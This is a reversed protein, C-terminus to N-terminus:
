ETDHDINIIEEDKEEDIYEVKEKNNNHEQPKSSSKASASSSNEEKSDGDIVAENKKDSARVYAVVKNVDKIAEALVIVAQLEEDTRAIGLIYITGNITEVNYNISKVLKDALMKSKVQTTIWTDTAYQKVSAKGESLKIENIVERVGAEDWVIRLVKLRDDASELTGTLLVRGESVEVSVNTLIGPIEKHNKLFDAKIKSWINVDDVSSGITKQKSLIVGAGSAGGFLFLPSCASLSLLAIIPLIIKSKKM